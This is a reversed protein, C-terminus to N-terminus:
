ACKMPRRVAVIQMADKVAARDRKATALSVGFASMVREATFKDFDRAILIRRYTTKGMLTEELDRM